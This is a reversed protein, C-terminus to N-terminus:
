MVLFVCRIMVGGKTQTRRLLSIVFSGWLSLITDMLCGM